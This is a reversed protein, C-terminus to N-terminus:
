KKIQFKEGPLYIDIRIKRGGIKKNLTKKNGGKNRFVLVQSNGVVEANNGQVLIATAEDIGIGPIEPYELVATILRNHRSRILFHQDIIVNELLGLGKEFEINESEIHRFTEHYEPYKLENGTIMKSSM